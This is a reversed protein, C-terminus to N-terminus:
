SWVSGARAVEGEGNLRSVLKLSIPDLWDIGLERLPALVFERQAFRPHPIQLHATRIMAAGYFLLDIDIIRPANRQAPRRGMRREIVQLDAHLEAVARTTTGLVVLNLFAGSEEPADLPATEFVSSTRAIQLVSGLQDICRRLHLRRDGLNSGLSLAVSLPAIPNTKPSTM